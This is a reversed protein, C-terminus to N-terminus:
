TDILQRNGTVVTKMINTDKYKASIKYFCHLVKLM